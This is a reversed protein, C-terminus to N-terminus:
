SNEGGIEPAPTSELEVPEKGEQVVFYKVNDEGKIHLVNYKVDLLLEPVTGFLRVSEGPAFHANLLRAPSLEGTDDCLSMVIGSFSLIVALLLAGPAELWGAGLVFGPLSRRNLLLTRHLTFLFLVPLLMLLSFVFNQSLLDPLESFFFLLDHEGTLTYYTGFLEFYLFQGTPVLWCALLFVSQLLFNLPRFPTIRSLALALFGLALAFLIKCVTLTMQSFLAFIWECYFVFLIPFLLTTVSIRETSQLKRYGAMQVVLGKM